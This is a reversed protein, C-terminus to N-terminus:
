YVLLLLRWSNKLGSARPLVETLRIEIRLPPHYLIVVSRIIFTRTRDMLKCRKGSARPLSNLTSRRKQFVSFPEEENRTRQTQTPHNNNSAPNQRRSIWRSESFLPFLFLFDASVREGRRTTKDDTQEAPQSSQSLNQLSVLNLVIVVGRQRVCVQRGVVKRGVKRPGIVILNRVHSM